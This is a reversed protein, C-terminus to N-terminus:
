DLTVTEHAMRALKARAVFTGVSVISLYVLGMTCAEIMHAPASVVLYTGSAITLGILGYSALLARRSPRFFVYSAVAISTLAIIIHLFIIM